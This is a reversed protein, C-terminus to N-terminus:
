QLGSTNKLPRVAIGRAPAVPEGSSRRADIGQFAVTYFHSLTMRGEADPALRDSCIPFPLPAQGSAWERLDM